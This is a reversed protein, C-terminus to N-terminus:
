KFKVFVADRPVCSFAFTLNKCTDIKISTEPHMPPPLIFESEVELVSKLSRPKSGFWISIVFEIAEKVPAAIFPGKLLANTNRSLCVSVFIFGSVPKISSSACPLWMRIPFPM